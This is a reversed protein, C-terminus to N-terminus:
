KRSARTRGGVGGASGGARPAFYGVHCCTREVRTLHREHAHTNRRQKAASSPECRSLSGSSTRETIAHAMEDGCQEAEYFTHRLVQGHRRGAVEDQNTMKETRFPFPRLREVDDDLEAGNEGDDDVVAREEGRPRFAEDRASAFPHVQEARQHEGEDGGGNGAKEKAFRNALM